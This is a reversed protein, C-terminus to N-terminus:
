WILERRLRSREYDGGPVPGTSSVTTVEVDIWYNSSNFSTNPYTLGVVNTIFADQNAGDAAAAAPASLIGSTIGGSGPGTSWYASTTGYFNGAGVHLICVRYNNGPTLTVSGDFTAKVWGSGAPGSWSAPDAVTGAVQAGTNVGTIQYICCGRPLDTAGPPSFFWIGTLAAPASVAFQMGMTYSAGDVTLAAPAAPQGFLTYVTM